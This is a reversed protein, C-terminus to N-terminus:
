GEAKFVPTEEASAMKGEYLLPWLASACRDASSALELKLRAAQNAVLEEHTPPRDLSSERQCTFAMLVKSRRVDIIRVLTAYTVQYHQLNRPLFRFDWHTTQVDLLLDAGAPAGRQPDHSDAKVIGAVPVLGLKTRLRDLLTDRIRHAPDEVHNERILAAGNAAAVAPPPASGLLSSSRNAAFAPTEHETVAIRAGKFPVLAARNVPPPRDACGAALSAVFPILLTLPRASAPM